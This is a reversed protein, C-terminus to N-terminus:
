SHPEFSSKQRQYTSVIIPFPSHQNDANEGKAVINEFAKKFTTSALSTCYLTLGQVLNLVVFKFSSFHHLHNVREWAIGQRRCYLDKSFVTPFPCIAQLSCNRRKRTNEVQKSFEEGNEDLQFNDDAFDEM